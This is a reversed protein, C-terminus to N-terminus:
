LAEERARKAKTRKAEKQTKAKEKKDGSQEKSRSHLESLVSAKDTVQELGREKRIDQLNQEIATILRDATSRILDLSAKLEPLEKGSAFTGIYPM